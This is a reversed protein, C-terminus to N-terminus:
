QKDIKYLSYIWELEHGKEFKGSFHKSILKNIKDPNKDYLIKVMKKRDEVKGYHIRNHCNSCLDFLNYDSDIDSTNELDESGKKTHREVLHHKEYYKTGNNRVFTDHKLDKIEEKLSCETAFYKKYRKLINQDQTKPFADELIRILDSNQKESLYLKNRIVDGGKIEGNQLRYHECISKISFDDTNRIEEKLGTEIRIYIAPWYPKRRMKQNESKYDIIDFKYNEDYYGNHLIKGKLLLRKDGGPLNTYTLYVIDGINFNHDVCPAKGYLKSKKNDYTKMNAWMIRNKSADKEESLQSFNFQNFDAPVIHNTCDHVLDLLMIGYKFNLEELYDLNTKGKEVEENMQSFLFSNYICFVIKTDKLQIQKKIEELKEELDNSPMESKIDQVFILKKLQTDELTKTKISHCQANIKIAIKNIINQYKTRSEFMTDSGFLIHYQNKKSELVGNILKVSNNVFAEIDECKRM